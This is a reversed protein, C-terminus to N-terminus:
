SLLEKQAFSLNSNYPQLVDTGLHAADFWTGSSRRHLSALPLGSTGNNLSHFTLPSNKDFYFTTSGPTQIFVGCKMQTLLRQPSLLRVKANPVFSAATEILRDTGNDDQVCWRVVGKGQVAATSTIGQLSPVDVHSEWSVFDKADNSVSGSAGTDFVIVDSTNADDLLGCFNDVSPTIFNMTLIDFFDPTHACTTDFACSAFNSIDMPTFSYPPLSDWDNIEECFKDDVVSYSHSRYRKRGMLDVYRRERWKFRDYDFSMFCWFM